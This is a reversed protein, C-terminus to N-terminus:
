DIWLISRRKAPASAGAAKFVAEISEVFERCYFGRGQTANDLHDKLAKAAGALSYDAAGVAASQLNEAQARIARFAQRPDSEISELAVRMIKLAQAIHV